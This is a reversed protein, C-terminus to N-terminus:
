RRKKQLKKLFKEDFSYKDIYGSFDNKGCKKEAWKNGVYWGFGSGVAGGLLGGAGFGIGGGILGGMLEYKKKSCKKKM